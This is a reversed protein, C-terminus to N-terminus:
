EVTSLYNDQLERLCEVLDRMFQEAEGYISKATEPCIVIWAEFRCDNAVLNVERIMHQYAWKTKQAERSLRATGSPAARPALGNAPRFRVPPRETEIQKQEDPDRVFLDAREQVQQSYDGLLSLVSAYIEGGVDTVDGAELRARCANMVEDARGAVIAYSRHIETNEDIRGPM